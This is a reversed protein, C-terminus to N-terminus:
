PEGMGRSALREYSDVYKYAIAHGGWYQTPPYTELAQTDLRQRLEIRHANSLPLDISPFVWAGTSTSVHEQGPGRSQSAAISWVVIVM